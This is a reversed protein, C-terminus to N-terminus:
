NIAKDKPFMNNHGESSAFTRRFESDHLVRQIANKYVM